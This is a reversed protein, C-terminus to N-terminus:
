ANSNTISERTIEIRKKTKSCGAAHVLLQSIDFGTLFLIEFKSASGSRIDQYFILSNFVLNIAIPIMMTKSYTRLLRCNKGGLQRGTFGPSATKWSDLDKVGLPRLFDLHVKCVDLGCDRNLTSTTNKTEFCCAHKDCKGETLSGNEHVAWKSHSCQYENEMELYKDIFTKFQGCKRHRHKDNKTICLTCKKRFPLLDKNTKHYCARCGSLELSKINSFTLSEYILMIDSYIDGTPVIMNFLVSLVFIRIVNFLAM